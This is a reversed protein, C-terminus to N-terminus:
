RMQLSLLRALYDTDWGAKLRKGHVGLRTRKDQRLLNLAIHRLVGLNEDGHDKRVRCTDEDFAVDLVWHLCNEIGWHSRAAALAREATHAGQDPLSSIYYRVESTRTDGNRREARIRVVTRLNAWAEWSALMALCSPDSITWCERIEVRGHGKHTEKHHAHIIAEYARNDAWTFLSQVDELLHPQNEKLALVYDAEQAVIQAAIDKQTGIADISVICGAVDLKQLLEPIATIENTKAAVKSQGLVMHNESAWASIMYIADKGLAQDHSGRMCKGDFPIVEGPLRERLGATWQRFSAEFAEPDLYRFLRGFTDHSPIGGPLALFTSLWAFKAKGFAEVETWHNAGCLIACIAIVIIDLVEHVQAPGNRPDELNVFCTKLDATLTETAANM